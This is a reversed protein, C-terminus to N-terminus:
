IGRRFPFGVDCCLLQLQSARIAEGQDEFTSIGFRQCFYDRSEGKFPFSMMAAFLHLQSSVLPKGQIKSLPVESCNNLIIRLYGKSLPLWCRKLSASAALARIAERPDEFSSGGFWQQSYDKSVWEFPSALMAAFFSFSRPYSHNGM